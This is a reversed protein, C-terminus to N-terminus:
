RGESSGRRVERTLGWIKWVRASREMVLGTVEELIRVILRDLKGEHTGLLSVMEDILPDTLDPKAQVERRRELWRHRALVMNGLDGGVAAVKLAERPSQTGLEIEPAIFRGREEIWPLGRTIEGNPTSIRLPRTSGTVVWQQLVPRSRAVPIPLQVPIGRSEGPEVRFGGDLRIVRTDSTTRETGDLYVDKVSWVVQGLVDETRDNTGFQIVEDSLNELVVLGTLYAKPFVPPDDDGERTSSEEEGTPENEISFRVAVTSQSLYRGHARRRLTNVQDYLGFEVPALVLIAESMKWAKEFQGSRYAQVAERFRGSLFRIIVADDEVRESESVTRQVLPGEAFVVAPFGSGSALLSSFMSPASAPLIVSAFFSIMGCVIVSVIVLLAPFKRSEGFHDDIRNVPVSNSRTRPNKQM